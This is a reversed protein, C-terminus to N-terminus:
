ETMDEGQFEAGGEGNLHKEKMIQRWGTGTCLAKCGIFLCIDYFLSYSSKYKAQILDGVINKQSAICYHVVTDLYVLILLLWYLFIYIKM